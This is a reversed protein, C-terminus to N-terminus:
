IELLTDMGRHVLKYGMSRFAQVVSDVMTSDSLENSEFLIKQPYYIPDKDSLYAILDNLIYCDGGETDIKLYGIKRINHQELLTNIAIQPITDRQVLNRVNHNNHQLHYENISNCGKFYSPLSNEVILNDPIYYVECTEDRSKAKVAANIKTVNVKEPLSDLYRKIPEVSMGVADDPASQILTDFDSTGIELFDLDKFM